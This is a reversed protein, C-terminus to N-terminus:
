LATNDELLDHSQAALSIVFKNSYQRTTFCEVSPRWSRNSSIRLFNSLYYIEELEAKEIPNNANRTGARSPLRTPEVTLEEIAGQVTDASAIRTNPCDHLEGRLFVYIDEMCDGGCFFVSFLARITESYQYGITTSHIGLTHDIIGGPLTDFKDLIFNKEALLPSKKM